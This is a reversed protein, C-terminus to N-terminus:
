AQCFQLSSSIAVPHITNQSCTSINFDLNNSPKIEWKGGSRNWWPFAPGTCNGKTDYTIYRYQDQIIGIRDNKPITSLQSTKIAGLLASLMAVQQSNGNADLVFSEPHIILFGTSNLNGEKYAQELKQLQFRADMQSCSQTEQSLFRSELAIQGGLRQYFIECSALQLAGEPCKGHVDDILHMMHVDGPLKSIEHGLRMGNIFGRSTPQQDVELAGKYGAYAYVPPLELTLHHNQLLGAVSHILATEHSQFQHPQQLERSLQQFM